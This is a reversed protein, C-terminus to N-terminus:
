RNTSGIMTIPFLHLRTLLCQLSLLNVLALTSCSSCSCFFFLILLVLLLRKVSTTLVNAEPWRETDTNTDISIYTTGVQTYNQRKNSSAAAEAAAATVAAAAATAKGPEQAVLGEVVGLVKLLVDLLFYCV